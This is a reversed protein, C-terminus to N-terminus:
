CWSSARRTSTRPRCRCSPYLWSPRLTKPSLNEDELLEDVNDLFFIAQFMNILFTLGTLVLVGLAFIWWANTTRIKLLESRV